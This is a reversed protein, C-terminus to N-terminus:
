RSKIGPGGLGNRTAIDGLSTNGLSKQEHVEELKLFYGRIRVGKSLYICLSRITLM